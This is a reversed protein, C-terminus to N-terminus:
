SSRPAENKIMFAAVPRAPRAATSGAPVLSANQEFSGVIRVGSPRAKLPLQRGLTYMAGFVALIPALKRDNQEFAKPTSPSM